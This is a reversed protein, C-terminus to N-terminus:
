LLLVATAVFRVKINTEGDINSTEVYCTGRPEATHLLIMDAPVEHQNELRAVQGVKLDEWRTHVFEGKENLVEAIRNNVRRDSRHRKADEFGEKM